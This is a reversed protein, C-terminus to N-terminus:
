KTFENVYTYEETIITQPRIDHEESPIYDEIQLDFALAITNYEAHKQLYTDYYGKGYGIRNCNKDFVAGPMIVCVSKGEASQMTHPELIGFYGSSVDEWSNIYYFNMQNEEIKPVAVNKKKEWCFEILRKTEVENRFDVYCYIEEAELFVPHSIVKALIMQSKEEWEKKTLNNRVQLVRKRIDAKTEMNKVLIQSQETKM